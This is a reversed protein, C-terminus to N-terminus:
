HSKFSKAIFESITQTRMTLQIMSAKLDQVDAIMKQYSGMNVERAIEIASVRKDIEM